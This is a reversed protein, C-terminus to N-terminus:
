NGSAAPSSPQVLIGRMIRRQMVCGWLPFLVVLQISFGNLIEAVRGGTEESMGRSMGALTVYTILSAYFLIEALLFRPFWKVLRTEGSLFRWGCFALGSHFLISGVSSIVYLNFALRDLAM